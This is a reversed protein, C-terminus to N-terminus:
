KEGSSFKVPIVLRVSTPKGGITGPIWKPMQRVAKLAESDLTQNVGHKVRADEVAGSEAITFEIHVTGQTNEDLFDNLYALKKKLYANMAEPGGPFSPAIQTTSPTTGSNSPQAVVADTNSPVASQPATLRDLNASVALRQQLEPTMQVDSFPLVGLIVWAPIDGSERHLTVAKSVTLFTQGVIAPNTFDGKGLMDGQSLQISGFRNNNSIYSVNTPSGNRDEVFMAACEDACAYSFFKGRRVIGSDGAISDIAHMFAAQANRDASQQMATFREVPVASYLVSGGEDDRLEVTMSDESLIRWTLCSGEGANANDDCLDLQNPQSLDTYPRVVITGFHGLSYEDSHGGLQISVTITVQGYKDASVTPRMITMSQGPAVDGANQLLLWQKGAQSQFWGEAQARETETLTHRKSLELGGYIGGGLVVVSLVVILITKLPSKRNPPASPKEAAPTKPVPSTQPEPRQAVVPTPAVPVQKAPPAPQAAPPSKRLKYRQGCKPCAVLFVDTTARAYDALLPAKCTHCVFEKTM